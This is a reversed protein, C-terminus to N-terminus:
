IVTEFYYKIKLHM